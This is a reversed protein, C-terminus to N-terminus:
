AEGSPEKRNFGRMLIWVGIGILGAAGVIALFNEALLFGIGIAGLIGGPILPWWQSRNRAYVFFFPAAVAFMVYATILNDSAGLSEALLVVGGVATLAYAPILVWRPARKLVYAAVFPCAIALLVYVAIGEDHLIGSTAIAILGAIALLIYAGLLTPEDSRDVLFLGLACLGSAALVAVWVWPGIEVLQGILLLAGVVILVLSWLLVQKTGKVSMTEM